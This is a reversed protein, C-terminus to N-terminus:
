PSLFVNEWTNCASATTSLSSGGNAVSRWLKKGSFAGGAGKILNLNADVEDAGDVVLDLVPYEELTGLPIALQTAIQATQESTPVGIVQLGQRVLRGLEQLFYYVTTGTGLGLVMGNQIEAAAQQCAVQKMRERDTM